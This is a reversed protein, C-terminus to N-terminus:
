TFNCFCGSLFSAALSYRCMVPSVSCCCESRSPNEQLDREEVSVGGSGESREPLCSLAPKAWLQLAASACFTQSWSGSIPTSMRFWFWIFCTISSVGVCRVGCSQQLGGLRVLSSTERPKIGLSIGDLRVCRAQRAPCLRATVTM